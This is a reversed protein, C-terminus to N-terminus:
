GEPGGQLTGSIPGAVVPLHGGHALDLCSRLGVGSRQNARERGKGEEVHELQEGPGTVGALELHDGTADILPDPDIAAVQQVRGAGSDM